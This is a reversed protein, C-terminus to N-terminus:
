HLNTCGLKQRLQQLESQPLRRNLQELTLLWDCLQAASKLHGSYAQEIVWLMGYYQVTENTCLSRLPQENTLLIRSFTKAYSFNLADPLSLRGKRYIQAAKVWTQETIVEQISSERIDSVLSPQKPHECELLVVDLVESTGLSSLVDLGDVYGLDMLVNADLLFIM